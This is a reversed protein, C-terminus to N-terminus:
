GKPRIFAKFRATGFLEALSADSHFLLFDSRHTRYPISELLTLAMSSDGLAAAIQARALTRDRVERPQRAHRLSSAILHATARDGRLAAVRGLAGRVQIDTSDQRALSTLIANAEDYKGIMELAQARLFLHEPMNRVPDPSAAIWAISRRAATIAEARHGHALLEGAVRYMTWGPSVVRISPPGGAATNPHSAMSDIVELMRLAARPNDAAAFSRAKFYHAGTQGPDDAALSEGSRKEGTYDGIAHQAGALERWFFIRRPASLWGLDVKSDVTELIAVAEAPRNAQRLAGALTYQFLPSAPQYQIRIRMQKVVEDWDGNCRGVSSLITPREIESVKELRGATATAISDVLDCRGALSATVAMRAAVLLFSSDLQGAREFHRLAGQMDGHWHLDEGIIFERYADLRPTPTAASIFSTVRADLISELAVSTRRRLEEIAALPDSSKAPVPDFVRLVRGSKVDILSASFFLTDHALYYNGAVALQAGNRMALQLPSTPAGSSSQGDTYLVGPYLVDILPTRAIGRTMWDAALLRLPDLTSDGTQNAFMAIVVRREGPWPQAKPRDRGVVTIAAIMIATIAGVLILM